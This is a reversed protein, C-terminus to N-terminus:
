PPRQLCDTLLWTVSVHSRSVLGRNLAIGARCAEDKAVCLITFPGQRCKLWDLNKGASHDGKQCNACTIM